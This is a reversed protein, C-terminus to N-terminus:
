LILCTVGNNASGSPNNIAHLNNYVILNCLYSNNLLHALFNTPSRLAYSTTHLTHQFAASSRHHRWHRPHAGVAPKQSM